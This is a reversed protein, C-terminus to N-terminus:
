NSVFGVLTAVTKETLIRSLIDRQNEPKELELQMQADTYQKKLEAM